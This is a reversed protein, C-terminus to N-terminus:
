YRKRGCFYATGATYADLNNEGVITYAGLLSSEVSDITFTIEEGSM